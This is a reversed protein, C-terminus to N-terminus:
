LDDNGNVKAYAWNAINVQNAESVPTNSGAARGWEDAKASGAGKFNDFKTKLAAATTLKQARRWISVQEDNM